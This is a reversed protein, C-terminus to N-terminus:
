VMCFHHFHTPLILIHLCTIENNLGNSFSNTSKCKKGWIKGHKLLWYWSRSYQNQGFVLPHISHFIGIILYTLTLIAHTNITPVCSFTYVFICNSLIGHFFCCIEFRQNLFPQWLVCATVSPASSSSRPPPAIPLLLCSPPHHLPLVGISGRRDTSLMYFIWNKFIVVTHGWCFPLQLYYPSCSAPKHLTISKQIENELSTIWVAHFTKKQQHYGHILDLVDALYGPFYNFLIQGGLVLVKM